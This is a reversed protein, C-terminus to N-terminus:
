HCGIATGGGTTVLISNGCTSANPSQFFSGTDIVGSSYYLPTGCTDHGYDSMSYIKGNPYSCVYSDFRASSYPVAVWSTTYGMLGHEQNGNCNYDGRVGNKGLPAPLNSNSYWNDNTPYVTNYSDNCDQSATAPYQTNAIKTGGADKLRIKQTVTADTSTTVTLDLAFGDGDVDPLFLNVGLRIKVNAQNLTNLSGSGIYIAKGANVIFEGGSSLSLSYGGLLVDGGDFGDLSSLTCATQLTGNGGSIGYYCVPDSWAITTSALRGSSDEVVFKTHYTKTHTDEVKWSGEYTFQTIPASAEAVKV